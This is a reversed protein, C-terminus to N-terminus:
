QGHAVAEKQQLRQRRSEVDEPAARKSEEFMAELVPSPAVSVSKQLGQEDIMERVEDKILQKWEDRTRRTRISYGNRHEIKWFKPNRSVKESLDNMVAMMHQGSGYMQNIDDIFQRGYYSVFDHTFSEFDSESSALEQAVREAEMGFVNLAGYKLQDFKEVEVFDAKDPVRYEGILGAFHHLRPDSQYDKPIVGEEADDSCAWVVQWLHETNNDNRVKEYLCWRKLIPHMRLKLVVEDGCRARSSFVDEFQAKVHDPPEDLGGFTDPDVFCFLMKEQLTATELRVRRSLGSSSKRGDIFPEEYM